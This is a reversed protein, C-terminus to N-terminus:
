RCTMGEKGERDINDTQRWMGHGGGSPEEEMGGGGCVGVACNSVGHGEEEERGHEEVMSCCEVHSWEGLIAGTAVGTTMGLVLTGCVM